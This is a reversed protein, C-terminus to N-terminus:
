SIIITGKKCSINYFETVDKKVGDVFAYIQISTPDDIESYYTNKEIPSDVSHGDSGTYKYDGKYVIEYNAHLINSSNDLEVKQPEHPNGDFAESIDWPKVTISIKTVTIPDSHESLSLYYEDSVDEGNHKIKFVQKRLLIELDSVSAAGIDKQSGLGSLDLVIEWGDSIDLDGEIVYWIFDDCEAMYDIDKYEFSYGTYEVPEGWLEIVIEKRDGPVFADKPIQLTDDKENVFGATVEVNVWGFGDVYVEVWHHEKSVNSWENKTLDAVYGTTYRAPIGLYRYLLTAATAFHKSDGHRYETLFQYVVDNETDM